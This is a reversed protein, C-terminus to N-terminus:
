IEVLFMKMIEFMPTSCNRAYQCFYSNQEVGLFVNCDMEFLFSQSKEM